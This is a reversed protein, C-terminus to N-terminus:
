HKPHSRLSPPRRWRRRRWLAVVMALVTLDTVFNGWWVSPSSGYVLAVNHSTPVVVMLNPSVRYPGLAGNAHWRPYYSIKVLLPVGIRSVHFSISQDGMVVRSVETPALLHRQFAVVVEQATATLQYHSLGMSIPRSAGHVQWMPAVPINLNVKRGIKDVHFAFGNNTIQVFSVGRRHKLQHIVEVLSQRPWNVPGDDAILNAGGNPDLWWSENIRLWETRSTIGSVVNPLSTLPIVLDSHRILYVHWRDGSNVYRKTIAVSILQADRNAARVIEPSYAIYYRVGLEQLHQVGFAVDVGGYQLQLMPNSPGVSLEAQNLFHYPTTPSSEFFLGEMSGVCNNTWYPLLMLGMTTGFRNQDSNYEWMSRGCGYQHAVKEMTTIIGHYEPWAPKAEYGSYNWEAWNSVQNPGETIGFYGSFKPVIGPLLVALVLVGVIFTSQVVRRDGIYSTEDDTLEDSTDHRRWSNMLRSFWRSRCIEVLSAGVLWGTSLYISIYWFPVLRENWIASQPDVVYAVLALVGSLTVAIGLRDRWFFAMLLAVSALVIVWQDGGAGGQPNFWGLQTFIDHFTDVPINRYGMSNTYRQTAAFPLLWWASFGASLLGASIVFWVTRRPHHRPQNVRDRDFIGSRGVLELILLLAVM